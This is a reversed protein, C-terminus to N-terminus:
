ISLANTQAFGVSIVAFVLIALGSSRFFKMARHHAMRGNQAMVSQSTKQFLATRREILVAGRWADVAPTELYPVNGWEADSPSSALL